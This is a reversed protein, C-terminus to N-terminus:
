KWDPRWAEDVRKRVRAFRRDDRIDDFRPDWWVAHPAWYLRFSERELCDFARDADGLSAWAFALTLPTADAAAAERALRRASEASGFLALASAHEALLDGRRDRRRALGVEIASVVAGDDGLQAAVRALGGPGEDFDANLHFAAEVEPRAREYDRRFYRMLGLSNIQMAGAPNLRTAIIQERLAGDRDGFGTLLTLALWHHANADHPDLEIARRLAAEADLWRRRIINLGGLSTHVASLSEDLAMAREVSVLAQAAADQPPAYGRGGMVTWADALGYWGAVARADREVARSFFTLAREVSGRTRQDWHHRAQAIIASTASDTASRRISRVPGNGL